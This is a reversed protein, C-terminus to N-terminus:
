KNITRPDARAIALDALLNGLLTLVAGITLLAMITPYDRMLTATYFLNGMGPLAFLSELIVSGGILGPVSLGLITIVPLLANRLAHRWLVRRPSAGKARATLIYDAKLTEIMSGRIFRTIGAAGGILGVALPLALHHLIDPWRQWWPWHEAGYTQLGSLPVLSLTVGFLQMGLLALWVSPAALGILLLLTVTADTTTGPRLSLWVGLPISLALVLALGSINLWLTLPLAETIKQAVPKADPALSTGLNGQVLNSLWSLYQEHLPKNLGLQDKMAQNAQAKPNLDTMLQIPDGPALKITLFCIITIGLLLPLTNLLRRFTYALM